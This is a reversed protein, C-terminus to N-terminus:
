TQPYLNECHNNKVSMCVLNKGIAGCIIRNKTKIVLLPSKRIVEAEDGEYILKQGVKFYEFKKAPIERRVGFGSDKSEM